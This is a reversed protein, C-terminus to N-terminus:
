RRNLEDTSRFTGRRIKRETIAARELPHPAPLGGLESRSATRQCCLVTGHPRPWARSRRSKSGWSRRPLACAARNSVRAAPALISSNPTTGTTSLCSTRTTHDRHRMERRSGRHLVKELPERPHLFPLNLRHQFVLDLAQVSSHANFIRNSWAVGAGSRAWSPGFRHDHVPRSALSRKAAVRPNRCGLRPFFLDAAATTTTRSGICHSVPVTSSCDHLVDGTDM